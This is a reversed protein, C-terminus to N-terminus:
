PRLLEPETTQPVNFNAPVVGCGGGYPAWGPPPEGYMAEDYLACGSCSALLVVLALWRVM